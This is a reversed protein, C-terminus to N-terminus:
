AAGGHRDTKVRDLRKWYDHIASKRPCRRGYRVDGLRAARLISMQRHSRTLFAKVELDHWWAPRRGNTWIPLHAIRALFEADEPEITEPMREPLDARGIRPRPAEPPWSIDNPWNAEFWELAGQATATTCDGGRKLRRFFGGKGFIRASLADPSRMERETWADALACLGRTMDSVFAM